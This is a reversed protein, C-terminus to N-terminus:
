HFHFSLESVNGETLEEISPFLYCVLTHLGLSCQIYRNFFIDLPPLLTVNAIALPPLLTVNAIALEKFDKQSDPERLNKECLQVVEPYKRCTYLYSARYCDVTSYHIGFDRDIIDYFSTM